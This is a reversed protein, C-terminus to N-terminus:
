LDLFSISNNSEHTPNLQLKPHLQNIYKHITETTISYLVRGSAVCNILCNRIELVQLNQVMNGLSLQQDGDWAVCVYLAWIIKKRLSERVNIISLKILAFKITNRFMAAKNCVFSTEALSHSCKSAMRHFVSPVSCPLFIVELNAATEPKRHSSHETVAATCPCLLTSVKYYM